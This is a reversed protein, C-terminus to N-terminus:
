RDWIGNTEAERAFASHVLCFTPHKFLFLTSTEINYDLHTNLVHTWVIKIKLVSCFFHANFREAKVSVTSTQYKRGDGDMVPILEGFRLLLRSLPIQPETITIKNSLISWCHHDSGAVHDEISFVSQRVGTHFPLPQFLHTAIGVLCFIYYQNLHTNKDVTTGKSQLMGRKRLHSAATELSFHPRTFVHEQLSTVSMLHWSLQNDRYVDPCISDFADNMHRFSETIHRMYPTFSLNCNVVGPALRSQFTDTFNAMISKDVAKKSYRLFYSDSILYASTSKSILIECIICGYGIFCTILQRKNASFSKMRHSTKMIVDYEEKSKSFKM